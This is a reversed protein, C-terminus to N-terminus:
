ASMCINRVYKISDTVAGYLVVSVIQNVNNFFRYSYLSSGSIGDNGRHWLTVVCLIPGHMVLNTFSPM